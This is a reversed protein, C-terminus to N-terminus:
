SRATPRALRPLERPGYSAFEDTTYRLIRAGRPWAGPVLGAKDWLAALFERRDALKPWVSPLFTARHRASELVIGDVGPRLAAATEDFSSVDIPELASLVSVRISMAVYDDVTIAPLRPDSFAAQLAHHAVDLALPDRAELAGICGLLREGRELTVFSAGPRRLALDIEDPVFARATGSVLAAAINRAALDLLAGKEHDDLAFSATM